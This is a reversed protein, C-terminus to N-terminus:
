AVSRHQCFSTVVDAAAEGIKDMRYGGEQVFVVPVRPPLQEAIFRGISRYDQGQLKFGARRIACPDKDYTDLGLSVLVAGPTFQSIAQLGKQLSEQYGEWTTGPPMPLHLTAGLGDGRGSEDAFGSHFPYECEPDCHLSVVLVSPDEYFISATGNGAHYDVDLIAVRQYGHQRQFRNAAAAMANVYCYGGFSDAAGHHGPHTPLVYVTQHSTATAADVAAKVAAADQQLETVLNGFVPTCVETCYYGMQGIVHKSPRQWRERHLPMNSPVLLFGSASQRGASPDQGEEGLAEWREWATHLFELLGKTHVDKYFETWQQEGMMSSENSPVTQFTIDCSADDKRQLLLLQQLILARRLRPHNFEDMADLREEAATVLRSKGNEDQLVDEVPISQADVPSVVLLTSTSM